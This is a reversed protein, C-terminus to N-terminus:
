SQRARGILPFHSSVKGSRYKAWLLSIYTQLANLYLIYSLLAFGLTFGALHFRADCFFFRRSRCIAWGTITSLTVYRYKGCIKGTEDRIVGMNVEEKEWLEVLLKGASIQNKGPGSQM